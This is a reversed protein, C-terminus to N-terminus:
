SSRGERVVEKRESETLYASSEERLRQARSMLKDESIVREGLARELIVTTEGAISRRHARARAKLKQYLDDPLDKVTLNAM